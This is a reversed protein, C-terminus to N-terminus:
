QGAVEKKCAKCIKAQRKILEGCFPCDRTFHREHLKDIAHNVANQLAEVGFSLQKLLGIAEVEGIDGIMEAAKLRVRGAQTSDTLVSMVMVGDRAAYCDALLSFGEMISKKLMEEEMLSQNDIVQGKAGFPSFVPIYEFDTSDLYKMCRYSARQGYEAEMNEWGQTYSPCDDNQCLFLYPSGWGLGDSFSIPPTEWIDMPRGCHPCAPKEAAMIRQFFEDRTEISM